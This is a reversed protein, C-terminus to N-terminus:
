GIRADIVYKTYTDYLLVVRDRRFEYGPNMGQAVAKVTINPYTTTILITAQDLKKGHLFPLSAGPVVYHRTEYIPHDALRLTPVRPHLVTVGSYVLPIIDDSDRIANPDGDEIPEPNSTELPEPTVPPVPPAPSTEHDDDDLTNALVLGLSLTCLICVIIAGFVFKKSAM